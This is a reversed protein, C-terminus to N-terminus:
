AAAAPPPGPDPSLDLRMIPHTPSRRAVERFGAAEFMSVTGVYLEANAYRRGATDRPYGELAEAGAAAAHEVASDLLREAVGRRRATRDIYFCVVSWVPRDDVPRLVTSRALRRFQDRPAVSCWGVPRGESYALLGPVAGGRVLERLGERAAAGAQRGFEGSSLRFFMCWCGGSAGRDGFLATLDDWRDATAPHVAMRTAM